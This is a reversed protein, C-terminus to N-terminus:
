RTDEWRLLIDGTTTKEASLTGREVDLTFSGEVRIGAEKLKSLYYCGVMIRNGLDVDGLEDKKILVNIKNM